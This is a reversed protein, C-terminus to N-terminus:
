SSYGQDAPLRIVFCAGRAANPTYELRGKHAEIISRSIALGLGTGDTKTTAFPLFLKELMEISVGPGTDRVSVQV